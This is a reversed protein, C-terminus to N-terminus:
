YGEIPMRKVTLSYILYRLRNRPLIEMVIENTLKRMVDACSLVLKKQTNLGQELKLGNKSMTIAQQFTISQGQRKNAKPAFTISLSGHSNKIKTLRPPV